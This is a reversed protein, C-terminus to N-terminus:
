PGGPFFRYSIWIFFGLLGLGLVLSTVILKKEVSLLPEAEMKKLEAAIKQEEAM